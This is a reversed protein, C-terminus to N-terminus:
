LERTMEVMTRRFGAKEFLRQGEVNEQASMLVVRAAGQAKLRKFAEDLLATAVGGHRQREEVFVDHVAGCRDLLLNWNREELGGYLYGVIQEARSAVLLLVQEEGLQSRLFRRYGEEIPELLMFRQPDWRHHLRVLAAAMRAVQGLDAEQMRRIALAQAM